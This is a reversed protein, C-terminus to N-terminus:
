FCTLIKFRSLEAEEAQCIDNKYFNLYGEKHTTFQLSKAWGGRRGPAERKVKSMLMECLDSFPQITRPSDATQVGVGRGARWSNPKDNVRAEGM